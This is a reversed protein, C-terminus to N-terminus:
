ELVTVLDAACCMKSSMICATSRISGCMRRSVSLRPLLSQHSSSPQCIFSHLTM